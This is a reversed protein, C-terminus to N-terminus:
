PPTPRWDAVLRGVTTNHREFAVAAAALVVVGPIPIAMLAAAVPTLAPVALTSYYWQTAPWVVPVALWAARERGCLVLAVLAVPILAPIATASLGGASQQQLAAGLEGFHEIYSAWPLIPATVLLAVATVALARWRLTLAIPVLAYIKLFAAVPGAGVLILPVLLTQPNGNWAGDLFPPFLIWWWPLHLLRVTAVVGVLSVAVLLGVGLTEPLIAIPALPLLSPPPAAFRTGELTVWPDAGALWARTADLYLRADFAPGTPIVASLRIASIAGFWVALWYRRFWAVVFDVDPGARTADSTV